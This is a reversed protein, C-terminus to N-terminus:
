LPVGINCISPLFKPVKAGSLGFSGIPAVNAAVKCGSPELTIRLTLGSDILRGSTGNGSDSGVNSVAPCNRAM